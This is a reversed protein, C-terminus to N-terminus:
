RSVLQILATRARQGKGASRESAVGTSTAQVPPESAAGDLERIFRNDPCTGPGVQLIEVLRAAGEIRRSTPTVSTSSSSSSTNSSAGTDSDGTIDVSGSLVENESDTMDSM